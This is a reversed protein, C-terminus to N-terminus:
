DPDTVLSLLEGPTFDLKAAIRQALQELGRFHNITLTLPEQAGHSLRHEAQLPSMGQEILYAGHREGYDSGRLKAVRMVKSAYGDDLYKAISDEVMEKTAGRPIKILADKAAKEFLLPMCMLLLAGLLAVILFTIVLKKTKKKSVSDRRIIEDYDPTQSTPPQGEQSPPTPAKEQTAKDQPNPTVPEQPAPPLTPDAM